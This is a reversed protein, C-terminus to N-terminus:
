GANKICRRVFEHIRGNAARAMATPFATFGHPSEPCVVLETDNGAVEWRAAMFLSDDLLPDDTGVTFLAPPLGRLDAYLASISPDRLEDADLGPFVMPTVHRITEADVVLTDERLRQSPTRSLDYCGFVLNAGAFREIADLRDRVRLLTIASLTAGASAGGILLRDTGFEAAAHELLWAAVAECDDAGAPWPDEPALRYEVSVTAVNCAAALRTNEPDMMEASGIIWAGGHIDVYVADVQEPRSIRIPIPGAPGPVTREEVPLVAPAGFSGFPGDPSGMMERMTRVDDDTALRLPPMMEAIAANIARAEELHEDFDHTLIV